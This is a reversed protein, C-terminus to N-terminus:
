SQIQQVFFHQWNNIHTQMTSRAGASDHRELSELIALHEAFADALTSTNSNMRNFGRQLRRYRLIDEKLRRSGSAEAILAHFEDDYDVWLDIAQQAELSAAFEDSMERLRRLAAEDINSAAKSAAEGELLRRMEYIDSIEEASFSTITPRCNPRQIVLGDKILQGVAEHVPTRSVNLQRTLELESIPEAPKLKGSLIADLLAEYVAESLRQRDADPRLQLSPEAPNEAAPEANLHNPQPDPSM